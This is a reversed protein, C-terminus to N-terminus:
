KAAAVLEAFKKELAKIRKELGDILQQMAPIEENFDM